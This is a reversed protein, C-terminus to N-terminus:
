KDNQREGLLEQAIHQHNDQSRMKALFEGRIHLSSPLLQHRTDGISQGVLVVSDEKWRMLAGEHGWHRGEACPSQSTAKLACSRHLLTCEM